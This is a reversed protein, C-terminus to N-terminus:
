FFNNDSAPKKDHPDNCDICTRRHCFLVVFVLINDDRQTSIITGLLLPVQLTRASGTLEQRLGPHQQVFDVPIAYEPWVSLDPDYDNTQQSM